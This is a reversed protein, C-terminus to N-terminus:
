NCSSFVPLKLSQTGVPNSFTTGAACERFYPYNAYQYVMDVTFVRRWRRDSVFGDIQANTTCDDKLANVQTFLSQQARHRKWIGLKKRYCRQTARFQPVSPSFAGGSNISHQVKIKVKRTSTSFKDNDRENYFCQVGVSPHIAGKEVGECNSPDLICDEVSQCEYNELYWWECNADIFHLVGDVVFAGQENLLTALIPDDVCNLDDPNVDWDAGESLWILDLDEFKKRYSSFGLSQEFELLPQEEQFEMQDAYDNYDEDSM